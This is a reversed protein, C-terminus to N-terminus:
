PNLLAQKLQERLETLVRARGQLLRTNPENALVLQEVEHMQWRDVMDIFEPHHRAVYKLTQLDDPNLRM